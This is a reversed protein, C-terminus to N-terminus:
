AHRQTGLLAADLSLSSPPTNDNRPEQDKGAVFKNPVIKKLKFPGGDFITDAGEKTQFWLVTETNRGEFAATTANASGTIWYTGKSTEFAFAKAHLRRGPKIEAAFLSDKRKTLIKSLKSGPLTAYDEQAVVANPGSVGRPEFESVGELALRACFRARRV